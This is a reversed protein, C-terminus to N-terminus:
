NESLIEQIRYIVEEADPGHADVLVPTGNEAALMLLELVSCGDAERKSTRIRVECASDLCLQAIKMAVRAHIGNANEVKTQLRFHSDALEVLEVAEIAEHM